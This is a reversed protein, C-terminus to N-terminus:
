CAPLGDSHILTQSIFDVLSPSKKLQLGIPAPKGADLGVFLEAKDLCNGVSRAPPPPMLGEAGAVAALGNTNGTGASLTDSLSSLAPLPASDARKMAEAAAAALGGASSLAMCSSSMHLGAMGHGQGPVGGMGMGMGMGMGPAGGLGMGNSCAPTPLPTMNAMSGGPSGFMTTPAPCQPFMGPPMMSAMPNMPGMSSVPGMGSGWPGMSGMLGGMPPAKPSIQLPNTPLGWAIGVVGAPLPPLQGAPYGLAPAPGGSSGGSGSGNSSPMNPRSAKYKLPQPRSGKSRSDAAGADCGGAPAAGAGDPGAGVGAGSGSAGASPALGALVMSNMAEEFSSTEMEADGDAKVPAQDSTSANSGSEDGSAGHQFHLGSGAGGSDEPSATGSAAAGKKLHSPANPHSALM